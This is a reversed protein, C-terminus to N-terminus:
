RSTGTSGAAIYAKLRRGLMKSFERTGKLNLHQSNYFNGRDRTLPTGTYDWFPVAYEDALSRYIDFIEERNLTLAYNEYYEPSYVLIPATGAGLATEIISRLNGIGEEDSDYRKGDPHERQFKEFSDTWELDTPVYGQFRYEKRELLGLRHLYGTLSAGTLDAGFVAFSFLPIYRHKWYGPDIATVGEYLPEEDLYPVYLMANYLEKLTVLSHVDLGQLMIEPRENHELYTELFPLQLNLRTGDMGINFVTRGPLASEIIRSDFNVLARSSGTILIDAGIAGDVVRNWVGFHGYDKIRLGGLLLCHLTFVIIVWLTTFATWKITTKRM